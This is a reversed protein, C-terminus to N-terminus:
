IQSYPYKGKDLRGKKALLGEIITKIYHLEPSVEKFETKEIVNYTFVKYVKGDADYATENILKYGSEQKSLFEIDFKDISYLIGFVKSDPSKMIDAAAKLHWRESVKDFKIDWNNIYGFVVPKVTQYKKTFGPIYMNSGYAFYYTTDSQEKILNSLKHM